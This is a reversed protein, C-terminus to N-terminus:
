AGSGSGRIMLYSSVSKSHVAMLGKRGFLGRPTGPDVVSTDEVANEPYQAGACRPTIQRLTKPRIRGAVVTKNAPPRCADPVANHFGEGLGM